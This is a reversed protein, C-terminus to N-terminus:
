ASGTSWRPGPGRLRRMSRARRDPGAGVPRDAGARAARGGQRGRRRDGDAAARGDRALREPRLPRRPRGRAPIAGGALLGPGLADPQRGRLGAHPTHIDCALMMVGPREPTFDQYRGPTMSQNFAFGPSVVHVNHTEGDQNTFRVTQGLAIAQVRPTFQLGRQNVLAIEPGPQPPRVRSRRPTRIRGAERRCWTSWRRVSRRRASRRCGSSARSRPAASGRPRPETRTRSSGSARVAPAQRPWGSVVVLMGLLIAATRRGTKREQRMAARVPQPLERADNCAVIRTPNCNLNLRLMQFIIIAQYPADDVILRASAVDIQSGLTSPIAKAFRPSPAAQASRVTAPPDPQRFALAAFPIMGREFPIMKPPQDGEFSTPPWPM